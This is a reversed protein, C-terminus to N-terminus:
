TPCVSICMYIWCARIRRMTVSRGSAKSCLSSQVDLYCDYISPTRDPGFGTQHAAAHIIHWSGRPQTCMLFYDTHQCKLIISLRMYVHVDSGQFKMRSPAGTDQLGSTLGCQSCVMCMAPLDGLGRLYLPCIEPLKSAMDFFICRRSPPAEASRICAPASDLWPMVEIAEHKDMFLLWDNLPQIHMVADDSVM